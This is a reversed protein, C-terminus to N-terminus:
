TLESRAVAVQRDDRVQTSANSAAQVQIASGQSDAPADALRLHAALFHDAGSLRRVAVRSRHARDLGVNLRHRRLRTLRIRGM